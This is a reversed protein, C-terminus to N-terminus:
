RRRGLAAIREIMASTSCGPRYPLIEVRGGAARVAEGGAVEEARYDGGKVLVDPCVRAVLEAPTDAAFAVLWDVAALGALVALRQELPNIPRGAGKLRAVSADDNVAVLLRDGLARARELYSVHGAHLLDFCGNTMVVRQGASRAAAVAELLAAEDLVGRVPAPPERLAAALEGPTVSATGLRAVVLGAAVNALRTAAELSQGAALCAALVAVVTDGAGTVDYVERARAALVLPDHGPRVLIVGHEGRTVLLAELGLTRCLAEGRRAVEQGGACRGAAAELEALNPTLLTAGRYAEFDARKPDVLVPRGAARAAAIFRGPDALAGKGYDSLLVLDAGALRELFAAHLAEAGDRGAAPDEIDIRLLQQHRSVVRMKTITALGPRRLLRREGVGSRELLGELAAGAEDDGILGLLIPTAGLAAVNVACNAAGGPRMETEDVRVVPVPAEPSIRATEGHWYRDLMVDGLVLVRAGAFSPLSPTTSASM